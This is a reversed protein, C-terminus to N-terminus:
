LHTPAPTQTPFSKTGIFFIPFPINLGHYAHPQPSLGLVSNLSELARIRLKNLTLRRQTHFHNFLFAHGNVLYVRCNSRAKGREIRYM